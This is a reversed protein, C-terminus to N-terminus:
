KTLNFRGKLTEITKLLKNIEPYVRWDWENEKGVKLAILKRIYQSPVIDPIEFLYREDTNSQYFFYPQQKNFKEKLPSLTKIKSSIFVRSIESFIEDQIPIVHFHAHSICCGGKKKESVTGHEFILSPGYVEKLVQKVKKCILELEPYLKKPLHGIGIYHKKPMILLYGEIIQGLSPIVVFNESEFLIRNEYRQNQFEFYNVELEKCFPCISM